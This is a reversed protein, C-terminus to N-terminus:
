LQTTWVDYTIAGGFFVNGMYAYEYFILYVFFFKTLIPKSLYKVTESVFNFDRVVDLYIYLRANRMIFVFDLDLFESERQNEIGQHNIFAMMLIRIIFDLQLLCELYMIKRSKCLKRPGIIAFNLIMDILFIVQIAVSFGFAKWNEVDGVDLHINRVLIFVTFGLNIMDLLGVYWTHTLYNLWRYQCEGYANKEENDM